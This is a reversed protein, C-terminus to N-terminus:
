DEQGNNETEVDFTSDYIDKLNYWALRMSWYRMQQIRKAAAKSMIQTDVDELNAIVNMAMNVYDAPSTEDMEFDAEIEEIGEEPNGLILDEEKM